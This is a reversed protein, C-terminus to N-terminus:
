IILLTHITFKKFRSIELSLVRCSFANGLFCIFEQGVRGAHREKKVFISCICVVLIVKLEDILNGLTLSLPMVRYDFHLM